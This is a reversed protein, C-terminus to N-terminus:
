EQAFRLRLAQEAPAPALTIRHSVVAQGPRTLRVTYPGPTLPGIRQASGSNWAQQVAQSEEMTFMYNVQHGRADLLVALVGGIPENRANVVTLLLHVGTGLTVEQKVEGGAQLMAEFEVRGAQPHRAVFRGLGPPLGTLKVVGRSNTPNVSMINLANGQADLCFVHAGPLYAGDPGSIRVILTAPEPLRVEVRQTGANESDVRISGTIASGRGEGGGLMPFALNGVAALYSGVTLMEFRAVGQGDTTSFMGGSISSSDEPRLNVPIGQLTQGSAGDVVRVEIASSPLALDHRQVGGGTVVISGTWSSGGGLGKMVTLLYEGVEVKEMRYEGDAGSSATKMGGKGILLVMWGDLPAGAVTLRGEVTASEVPGGLTVDKTEGEALQVYVFRVQFDTPLEGSELGDVDIRMLQWNGARLHSLVAVGDPGTVGNEQAQLTSEMAMITSQPVPAGTEDLVTVRLTAGPALQIQLPPNVGEALSLDASTFSAHDAHEAQVRWSGVPLNEFRFSGDPGSRAAAEVAVLQQLFPMSEKAPVVKLAAGSVPVGASTVVGPLVAGARLVADWDKAERPPDQFSFTERARAFGPAIVEAEIEGGPIAEIRAFGGADTLVPKAGAALMAMTSGGSRWGASAGAVPQGAGDVVRVNLTHGRLLTLDGADARQLSVVAVPGGVAPRLDATVGLLAYSGPRVLPLVFRGDSGSVARHHAPIAGPMRGYRQFDDLPDFWPMEAEPKSWLGIQAGALPRGDPGLVRGAVSGARRLLVEKENGGELIPVDLFEPACGEQTILFSWAGPLLRGIEIVGDRGQWTEEALNERLLRARANDPAEVTIVRPSEDEEPERDRLDERFAFGEFMEGLGGRRGAAALEAVPAAAPGENEVSVRIRLSAGTLDELRLVLERPSEGAATWSGVASWAGGAEAILECNALPPPLRLLGDATSLRAATGNVKGQVTAACAKGQADLVRVLLGGAAAERTLAGPDGGSLAGAAPAAAAGGPGAPAGDVGSRVPQPWLLWALGALVLLIIFISALRM